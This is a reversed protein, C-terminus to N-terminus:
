TVKSSLFDVMLPILFANVLGALNYGITLCTLTAKM